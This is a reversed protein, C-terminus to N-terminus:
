RGGAPSPTVFGDVLVVTTSQVLRQRVRILTQYEPSNYFATAAGRSPFEIVVTWNAAWTDERVDVSPAAVLVHAGARELLPAVKAGYETNFREFDRVDVLALLYAKAAANEAAGSASPLVATGGLCVFVLCGSAVLLIACVRRM